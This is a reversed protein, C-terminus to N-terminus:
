PHVLGQLILEDVIVALIQDDVGGQRTDAPESISTPEVTVSTPEM